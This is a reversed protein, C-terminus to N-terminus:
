VNNIFKNLKELLHGSKIEDSWIILTDYGFQKFYQPRSFEDEPKHWNRGFFEILKKNEKDVFDPCKRGLIFKGDGVFEYKGVFHEELIKLLFLEMKNPSVRRSIMQKKIYESNNWLQKSKESIEKRKEITCLDRRKQKSEESQKKGLHSERNKRKNEESQKRGKYNHSHHGRIYIKICYNGCGCKCLNIKKKNRRQKEYITRCKKCISGLKDKGTKQPTFDNKEKIINCKSCLKFGNVIIPKEKIFGYKKISKYDRECKKCSSNLGNNINKYFESEPKEIKCKTCIKM